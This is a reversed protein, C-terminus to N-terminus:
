NLGFHSDINSWASAVTYGSSGSSGTRGHIIGHYDPNSGTAHVTGGSDGRESGWNYMLIMDTMHHRIPPDDFSEAVGEYSLSVVRMNTHVGHQGGITVYDNHSPDSAGAFTVTDNPGEYAAKWHM